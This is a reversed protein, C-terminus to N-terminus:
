VIEKNKVTRLQIKLHGGEQATEGRTRERKEASSTRNRENRNGTCIQAKGGLCSNGRSNGPQSFSGPSSRKSVGAAEKACPLLPPHRGTVESQPTVDRTSEPAIRSGREPDSATTRATAGLESIYNLARSESPRTVKGFRWPLTVAARRVVWRTVTAVDDCLWYTM